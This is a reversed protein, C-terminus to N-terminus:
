LFKLSDILKQCDKELSDSKNDNYYLTELYIIKKDLPWYIGEMAAGNGAIIRETKFADKGAIMVEQPNKGLDRHNKKLIDALPLSDPNDLEGITMGMLLMNSRSSLENGYKRLNITGNAKLEWEPPYMFVLTGNRYILWNEYGAAAEMDNAVKGENLLANAAKEMSPTIHIGALNSVGSVHVIEYVTYVVVIVNFFILISLIVLVASNSLYVKREHALAKEELKLIREEEKRIDALEENFDLKKKKTKTKKMM